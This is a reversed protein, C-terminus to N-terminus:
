ILPRRVGSRAHNRAERRSGGGCDRQQAFEELFRMLVEGFGRSRARETTVMEHVRLHLRDYLNNQVEVGAVSVVQGQDRLAFLRYGKPRIEKLIDLYSERDLEPRLEQLVPLAELLESPSRLEEIDM